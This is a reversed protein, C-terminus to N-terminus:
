RKNAGREADQRRENEDERTEGIATREGGTEIGIVDGPQARGDFHPSPDAQGGDRSAARVSRDAAEGRPQPSAWLEAGSAAGRAAARGPGPTMRQWWEPTRYDPRDWGPGTISSTPYVVTSGGVVCAECVEDNFRRLDDESMREFVDKDFGPFKEIRDRSVDAVLVERDADLRVHGVPLLFDKSKFWGGSEVVVYYPQASAADMIFAEVTGLHEGTPSEVDLGEFDVVDDVDGADLYRLGPKPHDM